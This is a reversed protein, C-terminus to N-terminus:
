PPSGHFRTRRNSHLCILANQEAVSLCDAIRSVVRPTRDAPSLFEVELFPPKEPIGRGVRAGPLWVAVDGVRFRDERIQVRIGTLPLARWAMASKGIAM